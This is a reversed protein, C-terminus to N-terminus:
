NAAAYETRLLAPLRAVFGVWFRFLQEFEVPETPQHRPEAARNVFALVGDGVMCFNVLECDLLLQMMGPDLLMVASRRDKARVTFRKDFEISELEVAPPGGITGGAVHRTVSVFPVNLGAVTFSLLSFFQSTKGDPRRFDAIEVTHDPSVFWNSLLRPNIAGLIVFDGPGASPVFGRSACLAATAAHRANVLRALHRTLVIMNVGLGVTLLIPVTAAVVIVVESSNIVVGRTYAVGPSRVEGPSM